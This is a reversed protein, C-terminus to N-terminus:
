ELTTMGMTDLVGHMAVIFASALLTALALVGILRRNVTSAVPAVRVVGDAGLRQAPMALPQEPPRPPHLNM